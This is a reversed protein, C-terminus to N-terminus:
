AGARTARRQGGGHLTADSLGSVVPEPNGQFDAVVSNVFGVRAMMVLASSRSGRRAGSSMSPASVPVSGAIAESSSHASSTPERSVAFTCRRLGFWEELKPVATDDQLGLVRNFLLLKPQAGISFAAAGGFDLVALEFADAVDPPAAAFFDLVASL